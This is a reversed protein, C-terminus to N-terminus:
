VIQYENESYDDPERYNFNNKVQDEIMFNMERAIDKPRGGLFPICGLAGSFMITVLIPSIIFYVLALQLMYGLVVFFTEIELVEEWDNGNEEDENVNYSLRVMIVLTAFSFLLLAIALVALSGYKKIIRHNKLNYCCTAASLHWLSLDFLVHLVGNFIFLMLIGSTLVVEFGFGEQIQLNLRLIDEEFNRDTTLFYLYVLNTAIVGFSISALLIFLRDKLSLPHLEHRLCLGFLPHNNRIFQVWDQCWNNGPLHGSRRALLYKLREEEGYLLYDLKEEEAELLYKLREVEGKVNNIYNPHSHLTPVPAIQLPPETNYEKLEDDTLATPFDKDIDNSRRKGRISRLLKKIRKVKPRKECNKKAYEKNTEDDSLNEQANVFVTQNLDGGLNESGQQNDRDRDDIESCRRYEFEAKIAEDNIGENMSATKSSSNECVGSHIANDPAMVEEQNANVENM